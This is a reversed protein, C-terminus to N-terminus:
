MLEPGNFVLVPEYNPLFVLVTLVLKALFILGTLVVALKGTGDWGTGIGSERNGIGSERNGIGSEGNGMGWEGNMGMGKWEM